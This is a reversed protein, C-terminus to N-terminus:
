HLNKDSGLKKERFPLLRFQQENQSIKLLQRSYLHYNKKKFNSNLIQLFGFILIKKFVHFKWIFLAKSNLVM